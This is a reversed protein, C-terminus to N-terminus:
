FECSKREFSHGHIHLPIGNSDYPHPKIGEVGPEGDIMAEVCKWVALVESHIEFHYIFLM